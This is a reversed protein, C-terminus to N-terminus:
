GRSSGNSRRSTSTTRRSTSCSWTTMATSTMPSCRPWRSGSPRGARCNTPRVISCPCSVSRRRRPPSRGATASSVRPRRRVAPDPGTRAFRDASGPRVARRGPRAAPERDPDAPAHDQGFRQRRRDSSSRGHLDDPRRRRLAGQRTPEHRRRRRRRLDRWSTVARLRRASEHRRTNREPVTPSIGSPCSGGSASLQSPDTTPPPSQPRTLRRHHRPRRHDASPTAPEDDHRGVRRRVPRSPRPLRRPGPLEGNVLDTM